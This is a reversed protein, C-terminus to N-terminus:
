VLLEGSRSSVNTQKVENNKGERMVQGWSAAAIGTSSQPPMWRLVLPFFTGAGWFRAHEWSSACVERLQGTCAPWLRPPPHCPVPRCWLCSPESMRTEIQRITFLSKLTVLLEQCQAAAGSTCLQCTWTSINLTIHWFLKITADCYQQPLLLRNLYLWYFEVIM